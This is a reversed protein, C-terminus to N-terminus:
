ENNIVEFKLSSPIKDMIRRYSKEACSMTGFSAPM